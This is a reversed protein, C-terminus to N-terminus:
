ENETVEGIKTATFDGLPNVYYILYGGPNSIRPEGNPNVYDVVQITNHMDYGEWAAGTLQVIDGVKFKTHKEREDEAKRDKYEQIAEELTEISDFHVVTGAEYGYGEQPEPVGLAIGKEHIVNDRVKIKM